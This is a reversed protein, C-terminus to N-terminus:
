FPGPITLNSSGLTVASSRNSALTLTRAAGANPLATAASQSLRWDLPYPTCPSPGLHHALRQLAREDATPPADGGVGRAVAQSALTLVPRDLLDYRHLYAHMPKTHVILPTRM